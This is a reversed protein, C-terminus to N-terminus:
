RDLQTSRSTASVWSHSPWERILVSDVWSTFTFDCQSLKEEDDCVVTTLKKSFRTVAKYDADHAENKSSKRTGAQDNLVKYIENTVFAVENVTVKIDIFNVPAGYDDQKNNIYQDYEFLCALFPPLNPIGLDDDRFATGPFGEDDDVLLDPLSLNNDTIYKPYERHAATRVVNAAGWRINKRLHEKGKNLLNTKSPQYDLSALMRSHQM